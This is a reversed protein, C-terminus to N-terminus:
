VFEISIQQTSKSHWTMKDHSVCGSGFFLLKPKIIHSSLAM